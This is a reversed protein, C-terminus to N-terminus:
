FIRGAFISLGRSAGHICFIPTWRSPTKEMENRLFFRGYFIHYFNVPFCQMAGEPEDKRINKRAFETAGTEGGIIFFVRNGV